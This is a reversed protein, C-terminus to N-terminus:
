NATVLNTSTLYWGNRFNYNLFYQLIMKNVDPEDKDGAISWVNEVLFGYVLARPKRVFTFVPGISTKNSGLQDDTNTPLFVSAGLGWKLEGWIFWRKEKPALVAQLNLDSLGVSNTDGPFNAEQFVFPLFWRNILDVKKGLSLPFILGTRVSYFLEEELGVGFLLDNQFSIITLNGIPNQSEKALDLQSNASELKFHFVFLYAFILLVAKNM